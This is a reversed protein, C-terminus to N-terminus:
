SIITGHWKCKPCDVSIQPPYSTYVLSTDKLLEEGCQPCALGSKQPHELQQYLKRMEENYEEVTKLKSM